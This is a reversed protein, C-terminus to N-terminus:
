TLFSVIAIKEGATVQEAVHSYVYNSPFIILSNKQPSVRLNLKTFYLDGGDYDDNLYYVLSVTRELGPVSDVHEEFFDGPAYRVVSFPSHKLGKLGFHKAYHGEAEDFFDCILSNIKELNEAERVASEDGVGISMKDIKHPLSISMCSRIMTNLVPSISDTNNSNDRSSPILAPNWMLQPNKLFESLEEHNKNVDEYLFIGPALERYIM